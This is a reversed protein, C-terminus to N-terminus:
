LHCFHNRHATVAACVTSFWLSSHSKFQYKCNLINVDIRVQVVDCFETAAASAGLEFSDEWSVDILHDCLSDWYARSYDYAARHFPADGKSNSPLEVSISIVVHNCNRM